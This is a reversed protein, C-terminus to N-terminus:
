KLWSPSEAAMEEIQQYYIGVDRGDVLGHHAQVSLPMKVKGNESFYKGWTIRPVSDVPSYHMAHMVGTFSVWPFSSLFLYDDRGAEDELSPEHSMRHITAQAVASFEAYDSNYPVTCFSFVSSANTQVTFSPHVAAHEIVERDRIRQRFVPLENATKAILFVITSTFHLRAQKIQELLVTIDIPACINFHPQDMNSFFDFHKRRHPDDFTVKRM